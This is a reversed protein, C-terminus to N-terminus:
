LSCWITFAAKMYGRPQMRITIRLYYVGQELGLLGMGDWTCNGPRRPVQTQNTGLTATTLQGGDESTIPCPTSSARPEATQPGALPSPPADVVCASVCVFLPFLWATRNLPLCLLSLIVEHTHTHTHTHTHRHAQVSLWQTMRKCLCM